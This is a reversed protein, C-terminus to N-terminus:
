RSSLFLMPDSLYSQHDIGAYSTLLYIPSESRESILLFDKFFQLLYGFLKFFIHFGVTPCSLCNCKLIFKIGILTILKM